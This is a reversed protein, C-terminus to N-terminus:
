TAQAPPVLLPHGTLAQPYSAVPEALAMMDPEDEEKGSSHTWSYLDGDEAPTLHGRTQSRLPQQSWSPPHIKM